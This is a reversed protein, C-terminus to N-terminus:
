DLIKTEGSLIRIVMLPPIFHECGLSYPHLDAVEIYIDVMM